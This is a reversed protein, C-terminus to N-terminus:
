HPPPDPLLNQSAELLLTGPPPEPDFPTDSTIEDIRLLLSLFAPWLRQWKSLKAKVKNPLLNLAADIAEVGPPPNSTISSLSWRFSRLQESVLPCISFHDRNARLSGCQCPVSPTPPLWALCWKVLRHREKKTCPLLLTPDQKDIISQMHQKIAENLPKRPPDSGTALQKVLNWIVNRRLVPWRAENRTHMNPMASLHSLTLTGIAKELPNRCICMRLCQKQIDDLEKRQIANLFSIALGYEIVPRVFIKYARLSSLLGFGYMHVGSDRLSGMASVAKNKSQNVLMDSDLGTSSFPLGLYRFTSCHPIEIGYLTFPEANPNANLIECKTPSWRYGLLNSHQEAALLMMQVDRADGIIAIDDAYMLCNVPIFSFPRNGTAVDDPILYPNYPEQLENILSRPSANASSFSFPCRSCFNLSRESSPTTPVRVLQPHSSVSRLLRPLTDIFISYLFPSLISGQLVGHRPYIDRFAMNSLVVKVIVDDFLNRLLKLLPEPVFPQLTDWIVLRNAGDYAALIDLFCIVIPHQEGDVRHARFGGQAIDLTPMTQLLKSMLCRELIKRFISTLSIPRYNAPDSSSGKNKYISVVQATRWLTPTWSWRWCLTFLKDLLPAFNSAVPKLMEAKIHDMGPAKRNPLEAIALEIDIWTWCNETERPFNSEPSLRASVSGGFVRELHDAVNNAAQEPGQPLTLTVNTRNRLRIRKVVATMESPDAHLKQCFDNWSQKRAARVAKKFTTCAMIYDRHATIRELNNRLRLLWQKHFKQRRDALQQLTDNWFWRHTDSQPCTRGVSKDLTDYILENLRTVHVEVVDASPQLDNDQLTNQIDEKLPGIAERIRDTYRELVEPDKLRQLRWTRRPATAAPLQSLKVPVFSLECLHHDSLGLGTHIKMRPDLVHDQMSIFFDIISQYLHGNNKVVSYTPEGFALEANWLTLDNTSIWTSLAHNRNNTRTDGTFSGLRSNLDGLFITYLDVSLSNYREAAVVDDMGPPLYLGHLTYPGVKLPLVEGNWQNNTENSHSSDDNEPIEDMEVDIVPPTPPTPTTTTTASSNQQYRYKIIFNNWWQEPLQLDKAAPSSFFRAISIGIKPPLHLSTREIRQAFLQQARQQREEQSDNAFKIDGIVTPSIPDFNTRSTISEAKLKSVLEDKFGSHILFAVTGKAPFYIDLVRSQQIKLTSIMKRVDHYRLHHRCPVYVFDFTSPENSEQLARITTTKTNTAQTKKNKIKKNKQPLNKATITAWTNNNKTNNNTTPVAPQQGKTTKVQHTATRTATKIQMISFIRERLAANEERMSKLDGRLDAITSNLDAVVALLDSRDSPHISPHISPNTSSLITPPTTIGFDIVPTSSALPPKASEFTSDAIEYSIQRRDFQFKPKTNNTEITPHDRRKRIT